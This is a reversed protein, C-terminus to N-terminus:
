PWAPIFRANGNFFVPIWEPDGATPANNLTGAAAGPSNVAVFNVSAGTAAAAPRLELRTAAAQLASGSAGITGTQFIFRGGTADNGTARCAIFTVNGAPDNNIGTASNTHRYTIGGYASQENGAGILVLAIGINVAGVVFSGTALSIADAGLVVSNAHGASGTANDGIITQRNANLDVSRGVAVWNNVSATTIQNGYATGAGNVSCQIGVLPGQFANNWANNSGVVTCPAAFAGGQVNGAGIVTSSGVDQISSLYGIVVNEICNAGANASASAGIVVNRANVQARAAAGAGAVFNGHGAATDSIIGGTLRLTETGGPDTGIVIDTGSQTIVSNGLQTTNTWLPVTNLTGNGSIGAGGAGSVKIM